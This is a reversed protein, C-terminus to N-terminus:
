QAANPLPLEPLDPLNKQEPNVVLNCFLAWSKGFDSQADFPVTQTVPFNTKQRIRDLQSQRESDPAGKNYLYEDKLLEKLKTEAFSYFVPNDSTLLVPLPWILGSILRSIDEAQDTQVVPISEFLIRYVRYGAEPDLTKLDLSKLYIIVSDGEQRLQSEAQERVIFSDSSLDNVWKAYTTQQAPSYNVTKTVANCARHFLADFSWTHDFRQILRALYRRQEPSCELLLHWFTPAELVDIRKKFQIFLRIPKDKQQEYVVFEPETETETKELKEASPQSSSDAPPGTQEEQPDKKKKKPQIKELQQALFDVLGIEVGTKQNKQWTILVHDASENRISVFESSNAIIGAVNFRVQDMAIVNLYSFPITGRTGEIITRSGRRAPQYLLRGEVIYTNGLTSDSISLWSQALGVSALACQAILCIGIVVHKGFAVRGGTTRSHTM